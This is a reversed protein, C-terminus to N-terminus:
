LDITELDEDVSKGKKLSKRPPLPPAKRGKKDATTTTSGSKEPLVAEKRVNPVEKKIAPKTNQSVKRSSDKEVDVITHSKNPATEEPKKRKKLDAGFGKSPATTVTSAKQTKSSESTKQPLVKTPKTDESPKKDTPSGSQILQQHPITEVSAMSNGSSSGTNKTHLRSDRRPPEEKWGHADAVFWETDEDEEGEQQDYQMLEDLQMGIEPDIDNIKNNRRLLKLVLRMQAEVIGMKANMRETERRLEGKLESMGSLVDSHSRTAFYGPIEVGTLVDAM